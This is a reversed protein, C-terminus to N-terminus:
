WVIVVVVVGVLVISALFIRIDLFSLM